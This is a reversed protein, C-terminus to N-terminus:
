FFIAAWLVLHCHCGTLWRAVRCAQHCRPPQWAFRRRLLSGGLCIDRHASCAEKAGPPGSPAPLPAVSCTGSLLIIIGIFGWRASPSRPLSLSALSYSLVPRERHETLPRQICPWGSILTPSHTHVHPLTCICVCM